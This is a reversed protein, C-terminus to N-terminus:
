KKKEKTMHKQQEVEREETERSGTKVAEKNKGKRKSYERREQKYGLHFV